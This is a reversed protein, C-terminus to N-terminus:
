SNVESDWALEFKFGKLNSDIVRQRFEDSVFPNRKTEDIIKFIHKGRVKSEIFAYKIFMMIRKGDSFREFKAKDYDICDLVKIVNIAYFEGDACLLPLIEVSDKILDNVAELAMKDFEDLEFDLYWIKM